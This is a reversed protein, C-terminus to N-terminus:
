SSRRAVLEHRRLHLARLGHGGAQRPLRRRVPAPLRDPGRRHVPAPRRPGPRRAHAAPRGARRDPRPEALAAPRRPRGRRRPRHGPEAAPLRPPRRPRRAGPSSRTSSRSTPPPMRRRRGRSPTPRERRRHRALGDRRAALARRGHRPEPAAAHRDRPRPAASGGGLAPHGRGPRDRRPRPCRPGVVAAEHRAGRGAPDAAALAVPLALLLDARPLAPDGDLALARARLAGPPLRGRDGPRQRGDPLLAAVGPFPTGTSLVVGSLAVMALGVWALVAAPRAPIRALQTAGIALFAGLGLEWARTPLSFFAWPQNAQTLYLSLGFSVVAIIGASSGSGGPRRGGRGPRGAPRDGALLPLVAGGRRAVLLPPDAVAGDRGAPLRHGPLRLAHQLRLPGRRGRRRRRGAGPAAADHLGLRRGHRAPRAGLRAAPAAGAPRLLTPLSITGTRRVERLLLGTILFGSLVFFVDVGVYGGSFGPVAAHYLLVLVVAVARLGELDPRFGDRPEAAPRVDSATVLHRPDGQRRPRVPPTAPRATPGSHLGIM